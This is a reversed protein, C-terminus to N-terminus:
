NLTPTITPTATITPTPTTTNTPLGSNTFQLVTISYPQFTVPSPASSANSIIFENPRHRLCRLLSDGRYTVVPTIPPHQLDM